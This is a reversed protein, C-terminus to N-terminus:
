RCGLRGRLKQMLNNRLPVKQVAFPSHAGTVDESLVPLAQLSLADDDKPTTHGGCDRSKSDEMSKQNSSNRKESDRLDSRTLSLKLTMERPGSAPDLHATVEPISSTDTSSSQHRVHVRSAPMPLISKSPPLPLPPLERQDSLPKAIDVASYKSKLQGVYRLYMNTADTTETPTAPGDSDDVSSSSDLKDSELDISSVDSATTLSDALKFHQQTESAKRLKISSGKVEGINKEPVMAKNRQEEKTTMAPFGFELLEDFKQESSFYTKLKMRAEPDQYYRPKSTTAESESNPQPSPIPSSAPPPLILENQSPIPLLKSLPENNAASHSQAKRRPAPYPVRLMASSQTRRFDKRTSLPKSQVEPVIKRRTRRGVGEEDLSERPYMGFGSDVRTSSMSDKRILDPGRCVDSCGRRQAYRIRHFTAFSPNKLIAECRFAIFSIEEKSFLRQRGKAPLSLFWEAEKPTM